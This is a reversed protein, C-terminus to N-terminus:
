IGIYARCDEYADTNCESYVSRLHCRNICERLEDDMKNPTGGWGAMDPGCLKYCKGCWATLEAGCQSCDLPSRSIYRYIFYAAIAICIIALIWAVLYSISISSKDMFIIKLHIIILNKDQGHHGIAWIM